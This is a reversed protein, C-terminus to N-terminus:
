QCKGDVCAMTCQADSTCESACKNVDSDCLYPACSGQEYVSCMGEKDCSAATYGLNDANCGPKCNNTEKDLHCYSDLTVGSAPNGPECPTDGQKCDIDCKALTLEGKPLKQPDPCKSAIPDPPLCHGADDCVSTAPQAPWRLCAIQGNSVSEGLIAESCDSACAQGPGAMTCEGAGSCAFCAGGCIQAITEPPPAVCTGDECSSCPGCCEGAVCAEGLLGCTAGTTTGPATTTDDSSTVESTLTTASPDLTTTPDLSTSTPDFSTTTLDLSTSSSGTSTPATTEGTTAGDGVCQGSQEGALEGFKKGSPCTADPFSCLGGVECTGALEGNQCESSQLCNFSDLKVCGVGTAAVLAVLARGLIHM